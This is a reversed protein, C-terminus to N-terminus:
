EMLNAVHLSGRFLPEGYRLTVTIGMGTRTRKGRWDMYAGRLSGIPPKRVHCGKVSVWCLQISESSELFHAGSEVEWGPQTTQPVWRLKEALVVMSATRKLCVDISSCAVLSIPGMDGAHSWYTWYKSMPGIWRDKVSLHPSCGQLHWSAVCWERVKGVATEVKCRLSGAPRLNDIILV